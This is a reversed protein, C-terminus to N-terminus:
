KLLHGGKVLKLAAAKDSASEEKKRRKKSAATEIGQSEMAHERVAIGAAVGCRTEPMSVRVKTKHAKAQLEEETMDRLLMQPEAQESCDKTTTLRLAYSVHRTNM